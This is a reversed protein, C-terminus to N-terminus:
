LMSLYLLFHNQNLIGPFYEHWVHNPIYALTRLIVYAGSVIYRIRLIYEVISSFKNGKKFFWNIIKFNAKSLVVTLDKWVFFMEQKMKADM